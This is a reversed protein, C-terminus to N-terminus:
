RRRRPDRTAYWVVADDDDTVLRVSGDDYKGEAQLELRREQQGATLASEAGRAGFLAWGAAVGILLLAASAAVTAKAHSRVAAGLGPPVPADTGRPEDPRDSSARTGSDGTDSAGTDSVSPDSAGTDSDPTTQARPSEPALAANRLSELETLRRADADTLGGGRGYARALLARRESEDDPRM